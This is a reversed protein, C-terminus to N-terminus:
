DEMYFALAEDYSVGLIEAHREVMRKMRLFWRYRNAEQEAEEDQTVGALRAEERKIDQQVKIVAHDFFPPLAYNVRGIEVSPLCAKRYAVDADHLKAVEDRVQQETPGYYRFQRLTNM